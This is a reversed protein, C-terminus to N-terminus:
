KRGGRGGRGGSQGGRPRDAQPDYAPNADRPIAAHTERQWAHLTQTMVKARAPQSAALDREENPDDRLNYLEVHGGGEFFEILKFDGDRVASAPTARGVYCPFHWFLRPRELVTAGYEPKEVVKAEFERALQGKGWLFTVAASLSDASFDKKVTVENDDSDYAYLAQGDIVFQKGYPKKVDWRMLGPKKLQMTGSSTLTRKMAHFSYKQQVDATLDQTKDYFAQVKALLEAAVPDKEDARAGTALLIAVVLWLGRM